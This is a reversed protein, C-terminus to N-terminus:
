AKEGIIGLVTEKKELALTELWFKRFSFTGEAFRGM